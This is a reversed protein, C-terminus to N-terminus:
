GIYRCAALAASAGDACATTIQRVEKSRCDGAAFVGEIDTRCSEHAEIYGYSDLKVTDKIFETAPILGIAVFCGSCHILKEEGTDTNKIKVGKLETDAEFGSVVSNYIFSVNEKASLEEILKKEGTLEPLNQIVTVSKSTASLLVAEQLASNGGGIVTVDEDAYFAGDCVACFSIGNGTLEEENKVGLRRHSAGTAIIVTKTEFKGGATIVEKYTGCDKVARVTDMEFEGGLNIVQDMMKDALENGSLETFGPYNEIKPSFTIQGGFVGKEIILVDKDARLAYIAATLGAPGAGIIIIDRM